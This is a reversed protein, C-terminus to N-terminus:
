AAEFGIPVHAVAAELLNQSLQQEWHRRNFRYVFEDICGQLYNRSVGFKILFYPVLHGPEYVGM